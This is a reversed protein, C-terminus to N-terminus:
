KLKDLIELFEHTKPLPKPPEGFAFRLVRKMERRSLRETM